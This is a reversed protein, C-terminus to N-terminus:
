GGRGCARVLGTVSAGCCILVVTVLSIVVLCHGILFFARNQPDDRKSATKVTTVATFAFTPLAISPPFPGSVNDAAGNSDPMRKRQTSSVAVWDKHNPDLCLRSAWRTLSVSRKRGNNFVTHSRCCRALGWETPLYREKEPLVGGDAIVLYGLFFCVFVLPVSRRTWLGFVALALLSLVVVLMLFIAAAISPRSLTYSALGAASVFVLLTKLSFTPM